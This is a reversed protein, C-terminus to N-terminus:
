SNKERPHRIHVIPNYEDLNIIKNMNPHKLIKMVIMIRILLKFRYGHYGYKGSISLESDINEMYVSNM